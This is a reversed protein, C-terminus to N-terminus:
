PLTLAPSTKKNQYLRIYDLRMSQPYQTTADPLGPFGGGVAVNTIFFFPHNFVWEKGPVDAPTRTEFVKGDVSFAISDKQWLMGFLHYKDHFATGTPLNFDAGVAEGGSYGPGHLSSRNKGLWETKGINEMIDVEGCRPWGVGSDGINAGLMWFAPWIGQGYALRIRAEVYGYQFSVKRATTLRASEYGGKGNSTVLIQLAHKDTADADAVITAHTADDVYNELENNGWGNAGTEHNWFKPDPPLGLKRNFEDSWALQYGPPPAACALAPLLALGAAFLSLRM